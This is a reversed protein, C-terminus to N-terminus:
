ASDRCVDDFLQEKYPKHALRWDFSEDPVHQQASSGEAPRVYGGEVIV